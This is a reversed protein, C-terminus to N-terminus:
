FASHISSLDVEASSVVTLAGKISAVVDVTVIDSGVAEKSLYARLGFDSDDTTVTFAERTLSVGNEDTIRIFIRSYPDALGDEVAGDIRWFMTNEEPECVTFHSDSEVQGSILLQTNETQYVPAMSGLEDISREVKEIVVTTPQYIATHTELNYPVTKIFCSSSFASAMFPLMSNGFSDRYMLLSGQVDSASAVIIPDEVSSAGNTFSYDGTKYDINEEPKGNLPYLMLNLDGIYESNVTGELGAFSVDSGSVSRLISECALLAGSNNWHSDRELYMPEAQGDFLEFLNTYNVGRADLLEELRVANHTKRAAATYTYPMYQPYLTNKNPAITFVFEAGNNNVFQQIMALNNAINFLERDSMPNDATFDSLTDSYFLWGDKGVVVSDDASVGFLRGRISSDLSVLQQRFAFHDNFYDGLQSFYYINLKGDDIVSPLPALEKKETTEDTRAFTMCVLPILCIIMVVALFGCLIKKEKDSDLKM